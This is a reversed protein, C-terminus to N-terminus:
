QRRHRFLLSNKEPSNRWCVATSISYVTEDELSLYWGAEANTSISTLRYVQETFRTTFRGRLWSFKEIRIKGDKPCRAKRKPVYLFVRKGYLLLDEARFWGISHVPSHHITGCASCVPAVPEVLDVYLHISTDNQELMKVVQFNPLTLLETITKLQM